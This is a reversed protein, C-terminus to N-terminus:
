VENEGGGHGSNDKIIDCVTGAKVTMSTDMVAFSRTVVVRGYPVGDDRERGGM